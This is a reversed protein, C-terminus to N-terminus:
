ASASRAPVAEFEISFHDQFARIFADRFQEIAPRQGLFEAVGAM